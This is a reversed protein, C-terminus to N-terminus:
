TEQSEVTSTIHSATQLEQRSKQSSILQLRSDDVSIVGKIGQTRELYKILAVSIFDSCFPECQHKFTGLSPTVFSPKFGTHGGTDPVEPLSIDQDCKDVTLIKMNNSDESKRGAQRGKAYTQTYM